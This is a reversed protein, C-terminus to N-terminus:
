LVEVGECKYAGVLTDSMLVNGDLDFCVMYTESTAGWEVSKLGVCENPRGPIIKFSSVGREPVRPGVTMTRVDDFPEDAIVLRNGGRERQDADEDFPERSIKRAFFYWRRYVPAM